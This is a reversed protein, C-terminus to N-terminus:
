LGSRGAQLTNLYKYLRLQERPVSSATWKPSVASSSMIQAILSPLVSADRRNWRKPSTFYFVFNMLNAIGARRLM